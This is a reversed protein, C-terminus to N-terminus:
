YKSSLKRLIKAEEKNYIGTNTCQNTWFTNLKELNELDSENASLSRYLYSKDSAYIFYEKNKIFRFGCSAGMKSTYIIHKKTSKQGKFVKIVRMEVKAIWPSELYTKKNNVIKGELNEAKVIDMTEKLTVYSISDAKGWFVLKSGKFGQEIGAFDCSCDVVPNNSFM